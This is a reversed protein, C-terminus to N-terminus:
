IGTRVQLSFAAKGGIKSGKWESHATNVGITGPNRETLRSVQVQMGISDSHSSSANKSTGM